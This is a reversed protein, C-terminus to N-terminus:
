SAVVSSKVSNTFNDVAKSAKELGVFDLAKSILGLTKEAAKGVFDFAKAINDILFEGVPRLVALLANFIGKFGAMTRSFKNSASESQSLATAIAVIGVVLAGIGTAIIALKLLKMAATTGSTAVTAGQQAAAQAETATTQAETAVTQAQTAQTSTNTVSRFGISARVSEVTSATFNAVTESTIGLADGFGGVVKRAQEFGPISSGFSESLDFIIQRYNGTIAAAREQESSNALIFQRNEELRANILAIAAAGEETTANLQNRTRILERNQENAQAISKANEKLAASEKLEALTVDNIAAQQTRYQATLERLRRENEVFQRTQEGTVDGNKTIDKRLAANAKQLEFIEQRTKVISDEVGSRDISLTAINIINSEM